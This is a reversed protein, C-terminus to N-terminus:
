SWTSENALCIGFVICIVDDHFLMVIEFKDENKFHKKWSTKKEDTQSDLSSVRGDTAHPQATATIRM